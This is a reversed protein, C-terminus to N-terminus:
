GELGQRLRGVGRALPQDELDPILRGYPDYAGLEADRFEKVTWTPITGSGDAPAFERPTQGHSPAEQQRRNSTQCGTRTEPSQGTGTVGRAASGEPLTAVTADGASGRLSSRSQLEAQCEREGRNCRQM